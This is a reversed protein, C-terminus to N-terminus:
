GALRIREVVRWPELFRSKAMPVDCVVVEDVVGSGLEADRYPMLADRLAGPREGRRFYGVSLHPLFPAPPFPAGAEAHVEVIAADHFSNMGRYTLTFPALAGWAAASPPASGHLFHDPTPAVWELDAFSEQVTRAAEKVEPPPLILWCRDLAKPDTPLPEWFSELPEERALFDAWAEDFSDFFRGQTARAASGTCAKPAM